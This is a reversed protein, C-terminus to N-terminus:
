PYGGIKKFLFIVHPPLILRFLFRDGTERGLLSRRNEWSLSRGKAYAALFRTEVIVKARSRCIEAGYGTELGGIERGLLSRRNEWFSRDGMEWFYRDNNLKTM